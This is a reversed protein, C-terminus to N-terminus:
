SAFEDDEDEDELELEDMLADYDTEVISEIMELAQSLYHCTDMEEVLREEGEVDWFVRWEHDQYLDYLDLNWIWQWEETRTTLYDHNELKRIYNINSCQEVIQTAVDQVYPCLHILADETQNSEVWDFLQRGIGERVCSYLWGKEVVSAVAEGYSHTLDEIFQKIDFYNIHLDGTNIIKLHPTEFLRNPLYIIVEEDVDQQNAGSMALDQSLHSPIQVKFGQSELLHIQKSTKEVLNERFRKAQAKFDAKLVEVNFKTYSTSYIQSMHIAEKGGFIGRESFIIPTELYEALIALQSYPIRNIDREWKSLVSRDIGMKEALIEQSVGKEQRIKAIIEGIKKM